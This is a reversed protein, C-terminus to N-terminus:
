AAEAETYGSLQFKQSHPRPDAEYGGLHDKSKMYASFVKKTCRSHPSGSSPLPVKVSSPLDDVVMTLTLVPQLDDEM